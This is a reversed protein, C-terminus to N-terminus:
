PVPVDNGGSTTPTPERSVPLTTALTPSVTVTEESWAGVVDVAQDPRLRPDCATRYNASLTSPSTGVSLCETVREPTAELHLGGAIGGTAALVARFERVERVLQSVYRTKLGSATTVTNGHMPDCMWIVPHGERRVAEVLAPLSRSVQSVGMRSILTLRGPDRNPDLQHCLRVLEDPTMSPGIKCAVPNMVTALLRVHAGDLQRTRDGIWPWHTSSLLVGDHHHRLLPVEYDLLLAEHSTWVAPVGPEEARARLFATAAAAAHYCTLLRVPDSRRLALTPLPSNVAHGRFVPLARGGHSEVPNSRPKGFQGAIRGVRVVSHGTVAALQAGLQHLLAVKSDLTDPVCDSPDEACDGAQLVGRRGNAVEALLRSLQDVEERNVLGPLRALDNRAAAVREADAWEPQQKAPLDRWYDPDPETLLPFSGKGNVVTASLKPLHTNLQASM